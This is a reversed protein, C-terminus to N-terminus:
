GSNRRKLKCVTVHLHTGSLWFHEMHGLFNGVVASTPMSPLHAYRARIRAQQMLFSIGLISLLVTLFITKLLWASDGIYSSFMKLEPLMTSMSSMRPKLKSKLQFEIGLKLNYIIVFSREFYDKYM